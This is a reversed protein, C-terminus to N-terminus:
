VESRNLLTEIRIEDEITVWLEDDVVAPLVRRYFREYGEFSNGLEGLHGLNSKLLGDAVLICGSTHSERNGAHFYIWQFNPV